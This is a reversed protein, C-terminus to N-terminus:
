LVFRNELVCILKGFCLDIECFVFWNRWVCILLSPLQETMILSGPLSENGPNEADLMAVELISHPGEFINNEAM